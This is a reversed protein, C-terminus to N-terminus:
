TVKQSGLGEPGLLPGIKLGTGSTNKSKYFNCFFRRTGKMKVWKWENESKESMESENESEHESESMKVNWKWKENERKIKM